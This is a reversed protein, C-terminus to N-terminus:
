GGTGRTFFLRLKGIHPSQFSPCVAVLTWGVAAMEDLTEQLARTEDVIGIVHHEIM